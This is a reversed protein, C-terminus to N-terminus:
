RLGSMIIAFKISEYANAALKQMRVTEETYNEACLLMARAKAYAIASERQMQCVFVRAFEESTM